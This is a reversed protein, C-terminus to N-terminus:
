GHVQAIAFIDYVVGTQSFWVVLLRDTLGVRFWVPWPKLDLPSKRESSRGIPVIFNISVIFCKQFLFTENYRISFIM